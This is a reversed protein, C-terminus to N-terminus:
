ASNSPTSTSPNSYSSWDSGKSVEKDEVYVIPVKGSGDIFVTGRGPFWDDPSRGAVYTISSHSLGLRALGDQMIKQQAPLALEDQCVACLIWNNGEMLFYQKNAHYLATVQDMKAQINSDGAVQLAPRPPIHALIAGYRSVVMVVSCGNLNATGISNLGSRGFALFSVEDMVVEYIIGLDRASKLLGNSM